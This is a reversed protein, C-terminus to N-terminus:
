SRSRPLRRSIISIITSSVVKDVSPGVGAKSLTALLSCEVPVAVRVAGCEAVPWHGVYLRDVSDRIRLGAPDGIRGEMDRWSPNTRCRESAEEDEVNVKSVTLDAEVSGQLVEPKTSSSDGISRDLPSSNSSESESTSGFSSIGSSSTCISSRCSANDIFVGVGSSLLDSGCALLRRPRGRLCGTGLKSTVTLTCFPRDFVPQM